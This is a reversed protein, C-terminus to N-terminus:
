IAWAILALALVWLARLYRDDVSSVSDRLSGATAELALGLAVVVQARARVRELDGHQRDVQRRGEEVLTDLDDGWWRAVDGPVNRDSEHVPARAGPWLLAVVHRTYVWHESLLSM